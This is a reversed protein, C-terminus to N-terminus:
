ASRVVAALTRSMDRVGYPKAIVDRFGYERYNAMIPDQSYGSSV